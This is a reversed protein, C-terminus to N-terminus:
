TEFAADIPSTIIAFATEPKPQLAKKHMQRRVYGKLATLQNQTTAFAQQTHVKALPNWVESASNAIAEHAYFTSVLACTSVM